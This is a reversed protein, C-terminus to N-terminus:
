DILRHFAIDSFANGWPTKKNFSNKYRTIEVGHFHVANFNYVIEPEKFKRSNRKKNTVPTFGDNCSGDDSYHVLVAMTPYLSALKRKTLRDTHAIIDNGLFVMPKDTVLIQEMVELPAHPIYYLTEPGAGGRYHEEVTFPKFLEMDLDTFVPDYLSVEAINKTEVLELLLAYQYRANSSESPSGLALCRINTFDGSLSEQIEHFFSSNRITERHSAISLQLQEM